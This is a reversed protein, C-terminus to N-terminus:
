GQSGYDVARRSKSCERTWEGRLGILDYERHPLDVSISSLKEVTISEPGKNTLTVSRVLADHEPFITYSLDAAIQSKSDLMHVVLTAAEDGNAARTSPLGELEPKGDVVSHSQYKLETVTGGAATRVRFAPTRFDGRGLDPFERRVLGKTSWGGHRGPGEPVVVESTRGGFHDSVLDGAEDVHFRYTVSRGNLTFSSGDVVIAITYM